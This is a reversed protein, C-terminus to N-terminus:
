PKDATFTNTNTQWHQKQSPLIAFLVDLFFHTSAEDM